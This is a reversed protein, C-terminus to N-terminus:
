TWEGWYIINKNDLYTFKGMRVPMYYYRMSKIQMGMIVSSKPCRNRESLRWTNSNGRRYIEKKM